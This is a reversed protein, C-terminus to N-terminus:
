NVFFTANKLIGKENRVLSAADAFADHEFFLTWNEDVAQELLKKKEAMIELPYLDYGMVWPLPIHTATPILDGCYCVSTKGDTVRVLQQAHTHANSIILHVGPFLEIEGNIRTLKGADMLPLFNEKMYSVKERANPNLAWKYNEEQVYYTANPFTPVAKGNVEKVAGGAHDFHLHTLIVDTIDAPTLNFKKLNTELYSESIKYMERAKDNWKQGMGTDVLIHKGKGSILMARASMDIRNKDDAPNTKEWLVKPVTGFMAGGDLAFRECEVAHIEYNGIKM